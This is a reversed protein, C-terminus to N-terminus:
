LSRLGERLTIRSIRRTPYLGALLAALVSLLVAQFPLSVFFYSQMTWGFSRRNIVEILIDSMIWGLPLSLLGALLGILASQSLVLRRLQGPTIGTARLISFERGKELFLAMLASFVGVFAVIVVLLRLVNTIAFTRDFVQLSFDRITKNSRVMVAQESAGAWRQLQETLAAVDMDKDLVLGITSIGRDAWYKEYVRRPMVVMGQTASYDRYVGAIKLKISGAEGTQV